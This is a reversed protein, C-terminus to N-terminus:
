GLLQADGFFHILEDLQTGVAAAPIAEDSAAALPLERFELALARVQRIADPGAASLVLRRVLSGPRLKVLAIAVDAGEAHAIVDVQRQRLSDLLDLCSLAHQEPGNVDSAGDSEGCGPLDPAYISRDAGLPALLAQFFRGRGQAGPLCLVPVAEDFGGGPPIAQHVHLQGYRSDFYTRRLRAAPRM